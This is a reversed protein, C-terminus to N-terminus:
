SKVVNGIRCALCLDCADDHDEFCHDCECDCGNAGLLERVKDLM